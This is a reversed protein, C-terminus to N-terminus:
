REINTAQQAVQALLAPLLDDETAEIQQQLWQRFDQTEANDIFIPASWDPDDQKCIAREGTFLTQHIIEKTVQPKTALERIRGWQAASPGVPIDAPVSALLRASRYLLKLTRLWDKAQKEIEQNQSKQGLQGVLWQALPIAPQEPKPPKEVISAAELAPQPTQLLQPNIWVQGLGAQRYLGVGAELPQIDTAQKLKFHLVSGMSLVTREQERRAYHSNFPAYHRSRIFSKKLNLDGDPLGFHETTPLLTPQGWEDLLALDALLWLTIDTTPKDSISQKDETWNAKKVAVHGYEAYRSRGLRLDGTMKAILQAFIDTSVDDDAELMFGFRLGQPLSTYGFLQGQSARGTKPDIATKMRLHRSPQSISGDLAIYGNRMQVPQIGEKYKELQYNLVNQPQLQKQQIAAAGTKQQHWCLPMPYSLRNTESLPLANGFRVKGSQFITYAEQESLESYWDAAIAGLLNAGPLYDLSSHGGLTAARQSIIVDELLTATFSQKQMNIRM